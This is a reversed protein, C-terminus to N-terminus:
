PAYPDRAKAIVPMEDEGAAQAVDLLALMETPDALLARLEDEDEIGFHERVWDAIPVEKPTDHM